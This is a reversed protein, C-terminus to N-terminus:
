TAITSQKPKPTAKITSAKIAEPKPPDPLPPKVDAKKM